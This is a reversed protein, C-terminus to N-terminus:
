RGGLLLKNARPIRKIVEVAIVYLVMSVFTEIIWVVVNPVFNGTLRRLVYSNIYSNLIYIGLSIQGFYVFLEVGVGKWRDCIMKCLIIVTIAGVFGIAWRYIDIGLQIILGNEGLLSIKTTYIYSNYGYFFFLVIFIVIVLALAYWDKKAIKRYWNVGDFRNFLFGTVFYPYMFVYLHFNFKETTLLMPILLLVYLWTKGMFAKEVLLVILSCWFIAWLFWLGNLLKSAYTLAFDSLVFEHKIVM